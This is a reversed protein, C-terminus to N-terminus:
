KARTPSGEAADPAVGLQALPETKEPAPKQVVVVEPRTALTTEAASQQLSSAIASVLAVVLLVGALGTVGIRVRQVRERAESPEPQRESLNSVMDQM